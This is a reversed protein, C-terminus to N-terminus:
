MLRSFFNLWLSFISQDKTPNFKGFVEFFIGKKVLWKLNGSFIVKYPADAQQSHCYVTRAIPMASGPATGPAEVLLGALYVALTLRFSNEPNKIPAFWSRRINFSAKRKGPM